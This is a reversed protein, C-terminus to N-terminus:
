QYKDLLIQDTIEGSIEDPNIHPLNYETNYQQIKIKFLHAPSEYIPKYENWYEDETMGAAELVAKEFERGEDSSEVMDRMENTFDVIEKQTPLLNHEEAFQREYVQVKIADWADQLPTSTETFKFLNAKIEVENATINEGLVTGVIRNSGGKDSSITKSQSQTVMINEKIAKGIKHGMQTPSNGSAFITVMSLIIIAFLILFIKVRKMVM